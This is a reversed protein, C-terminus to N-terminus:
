QGVPKSRERSKKAALESAREQMHNRIAGIRRYLGLAEDPTLALQYAEFVGEVLGLEAVPAIDNYINLALRDDVTLGERAALVPCNDCDYGGEDYTAQRLEEDKERLCCTFLNGEEGEWRLFEVLGPPTPPM